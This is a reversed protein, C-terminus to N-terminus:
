REETDCGCNTIYSHGCSDCFQVDDFTPAFLPCDQQHPGDPMAECWPCCEDPEPDAVSPWPIVIVRAGGCRGRQLRVLVAAV